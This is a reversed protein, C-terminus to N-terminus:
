HNTNEYKETLVPWLINYSKCYYSYMASSILTFQCKWPHCSQLFTKCGKQFPNKELLFSSDIFPFFKSGMPAFKKRKSYVGKWFIIPKSSFPPFDVLYIWGGSLRRKVFCYETQYKVRTRSLRSISQRQLCHLDLDTPKQLLWSIQIQVTQWETHSNIDVIQILYDSQSVILFPRPM